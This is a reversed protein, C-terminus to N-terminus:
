ISPLIIKPYQTTCHKPEKYLIVIMGVPQLKGEIAFFSIAEADSAKMLHYLKPLVKKM